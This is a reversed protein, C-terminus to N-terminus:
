DIVSQAEITRVRRQTRSIDNELVFVRRDETEIGRIPLQPRTAFDISQGQMAMGMGSAGGAGRFKQGAIMKVRALGQTIAAAAAATARFPADPSPITLQSNYARQAAEFTTIATEAIALNQNRRFAKRQEAETEKDTAKMLNLIAMANEMRVQKMMEEAERIQDARKHADEILKTTLANAREREADNAAKQLAEKQDIFKQELALLENFQLEELQKINDGHLVAEEMERRHKERLMEMEREEQDEILQISRDRHRRDQAELRKREEEAEKEQAQRRKELEVNQEKIASLRRGELRELRLQAAAIEDSIELEKEKQDNLQKNVEGILVQTGFWGAAVLRAKQMFSLTKAEEQVMEQKAELQTLIENTENIRETLNDMILQRMEKTEKGQLKLNNLQEVLIDAEMDLREIKKDIGKINDDIEKATDRMLSRLKDFNAVLLGVAVVAAGIGTAILAKRFATTAVTLGNTSATATVNARGLLVTNLASEKRLVNSVAQVGNLLAIAAQLKVFTKQLDENESGFLAAAGQAAAFGGAIGQATDVFADLRKNDNALTRVTKNVKDIQDQLAAARRAAQEFAEGKLEGSALQERLDRLQRTATQTRKNATAVTDSKVNLDLAIKKAM